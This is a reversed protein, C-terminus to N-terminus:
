DFSVLGALVCRAEEEKGRRARRSRTAPWCDIVTMTAPGVDQRGAADGLRPSANISRASTIAIADMTASM